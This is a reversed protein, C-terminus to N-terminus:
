IGGVLSTSVCFNNFLYKGHVAGIEFKTLPLVEVKKSFFAIDSLTTVEPLNPLVPEKRSESLDTSVVTNDKLGDPFVPVEHSELLPLPVASDDELLSSPVSNTSSTSISMESNVCETVSLDALIQETELSDDYPVLPESSRSQSISTDQNQGSKGVQRSSVTSQISSNGDGVTQSLIHDTSSESIDPTSHSQDSLILRSESPEKHLNDKTTGQGEHLSEASQGLSAVDGFRQPPRRQRRSRRPESSTAPEPSTAPVSIIDYKQQM